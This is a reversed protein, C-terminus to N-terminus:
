QGFLFDFEYSTWISSSAYTSEAVWSQALLHPESPLELEHGKWEWKRPQKWKKLSKPLFLTSVHVDDYFGMELNDALMEKSIAAHLFSHFLLGFRVRRYKLMRITPMGPIPRPGNRETLNM